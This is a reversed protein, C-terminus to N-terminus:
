MMSPEPVSTVPPFTTREPEPALAIDVMSPPELWCTAAPSTTNMGALVGCQYLSTSPAIRYRSTRNSSGPFYSCDGSHTRGTPRKGADDQDQGGGRAGARM